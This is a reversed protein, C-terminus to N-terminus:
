PGDQATDNIALAIRLAETWIAEFDLTDARVGRYGKTHDQGLLAALGAFAHHGAVASYASWNGYLILHGASNVWLQFPAYKVGHPHFHVGGGPRSGFWLLEHTGRMDALSLLRERYREALSREDETAVSAIFSEWTWPTAPGTSARQKAEALEGGFTTPILIEVGDHSAYTLQLATVSVEPKTALNLFEVLRRLDDDIADVALCLHIRGEAINTRLVEIADATLEDDFSRGKSMLWANRFADFGDIWIASAYDLVQGIVMRRRESNSALKCEVVTISGDREVACVDAPGAPTALEAVTLAADSVGPIRGPDAVLLSQLHAENTYTTTAPSTWPGASGVSRVLIQREESM